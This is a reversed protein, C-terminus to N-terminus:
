NMLHTPVHLLISEATTCSLKLMSRTEISAMRDILLRPGTWFLVCHTHESISNRLAM